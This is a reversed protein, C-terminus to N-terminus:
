AFLDGSFLGCIGSDFNSFQYLVPSHIFPMCSSNYLVMIQPPWTKHIQIGSEQHNIITAACPNQLNKKASLNPFAILAFGKQLVMPCTWHIRAAFSFGHSCSNHLLSVCLCVKKLFTVVTKVKRDQHSCSCVSITIPYYAAFSLKRALGLQAKALGEEEPGIWYYSSCRGENDLNM